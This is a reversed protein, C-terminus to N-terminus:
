ASTTKTVHALWAATSTAGSEAGLGDRDAQVLVALELQKLRAQQRRLGVLAERQEDSTMSWLPVSGLRDLAGSLSATFRVVAHAGPVGGTPPAPPAITSTM